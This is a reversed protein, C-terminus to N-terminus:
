KKYMNDISKQPKREKLSYHIGAASLASGSKNGVKLLILVYLNESTSRLRNYKGYDNM